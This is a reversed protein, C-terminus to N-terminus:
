PLRLNVVQGSSGPVGISRDNLTIFIGGANGVFLKFHDAAKFRVVEDPKLTMEVPAGGDASVTMWTQEIARIHLLLSPQPEVVGDPQEEAVADNQSETPQPPQIDPEINVSQKPAPSVPTEVTEVKNTPPASAPADGESIELASGAETAAEHPPTDSSAEPTPVEAAPQVSHPAVPEAQKVDTRMLGAVFLTLAILVALLVVALLIRPWYGTSAPKETVTTQQDPLNMSCCFDFRQLADEVDAGVAAAYARVFGKVFVPAPLSTLDQEELQKLRSVPIKTVASVEELSKGKSKRNLQLYHGFDCPKEYETNM